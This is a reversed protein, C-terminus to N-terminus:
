LCLRDVVIFIKLPIDFNYDMCDDCPKRALLLKGTQLIMGREKPM